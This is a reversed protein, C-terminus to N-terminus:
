EILKKRKFAEIVPMLNLEGLELKTKKGYKLQNRLYERDQLKSGEFYCEEENLENDVKIFTLLDEIGHVLREKSTMETTVTAINCLTYTMMCYVAKVNSKLIEDAIENMKRYMTTKIDSHFMDITFTDDDYIIWITPMLDANGIIIHMIIFKDFYDNGIKSFMGQDFKSLLGRHMQSGDGLQMAMRGAREFEDICPYYVYDIMFLIDRPLLLFHMKDIKQALADSLQCKEGIDNQMAILFEKMAKIGSMLKTYLDEKTDKEFFSFKATFFVENTQASVLFTKLENLLTALEVDNEVTFTKTLVNVGYSPFYITTEIEKVLQFPQEKTVENRKTIFWKCDSLYKKNNKDYIDKYETHAISKQLVLTVTRFESFFKDLNSINDFFDKEKDFQELASLASYFKQYATYLIGPM